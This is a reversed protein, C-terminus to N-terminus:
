RRNAGAVEPVSYGHQRLMEEVGGWFHDPGSYGTLRVLERGDEVLFFTPTYDIDASGPFRPQVAELQVRSLPAVKAHPSFAYIVGIEKEWRKCIACNKSTVMVLEPAASAAGAGLLVFGLLLLALAHRM